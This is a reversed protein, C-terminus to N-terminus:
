GGGGGRGGAGGAFFFGGGGGADADVVPAEGVMQGVVWEGAAVPAGFGGEFLLCEGGADADGDVLAASSGCSRVAAGSAGGRWRSSPAAAASRLRSRMM